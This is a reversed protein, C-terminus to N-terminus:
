SRPRTANANLVRENEPRMNCETTTFPTAVEGDAMAEHTSALRDLDDAAEDARDAMEGKLQRQRENLESGHAVVEM